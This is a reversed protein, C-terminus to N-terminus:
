VIVAERGRKNENIIKYEILLWKFKVSGKQLNIGNEDIEVRHHNIVINAKKTFVGKNM